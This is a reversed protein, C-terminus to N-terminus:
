CGNVNPNCIGHSLGSEERVERGPSAKAQGEIAKQKNPHDIQQKLVCGV